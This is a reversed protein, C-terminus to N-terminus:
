NLEEDDQTRSKIVGNLAGEEKLYGIMVPLFEHIPQSQPISVYGVSPLKIEKDDPLNTEYAYSQALATLIEAMFASLVEHGYDKIWFGIPATEILTTIVKAQFEPETLEPEDAEQEVHFNLGNAHLKMMVIYKDTEVRLTAGGLVFRSVAQRAGAPPRLFNNAIKEIQLRL